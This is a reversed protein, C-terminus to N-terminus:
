EAQIRQNKTKEKPYGMIAKLKSGDMYDTRVFQMWM